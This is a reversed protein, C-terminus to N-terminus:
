RGGVSDENRAEPSEARRQFFSALFSFPNYDTAEPADINDLGEIDKVTNALWTSFPLALGEYAVKILYLSITTRLLDWFLINGSYSITMYLVSDILEGVITSVLFRGAQKPGRAGRERFKM